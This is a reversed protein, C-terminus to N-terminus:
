QELFENTKSTSSGLMELDAIRNMGNEWKLDQDDEMIVYKYSFYPVSSVIPNDLVWVHGDTWKM